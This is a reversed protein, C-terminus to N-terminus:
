DLQACLPIGNYESKQKGEAEGIFLANMHSICMTSLFSPHSYPIYEHVAQWTEKQSYVDICNYPTFLCNLRTHPWQSVMQPIHINNLLACSKCKFCLSM